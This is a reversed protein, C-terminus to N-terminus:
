AGVRVREIKRQKWQLGYTVGDFAHDEGDTDVDEINNADRPLTPITEIAKKCNSFFVLGPKGEPCKPNPALVRHFNQVRAVRSGPGSTAYPAEGRAEIASACADRAM